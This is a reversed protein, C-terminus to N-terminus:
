GVVAGPGVLPDVPLVSVGSLTAASVTLTAGGSIGGPVAQIATSGVALGTALGGSAPTLRVRGEGVKATIPLRNSVILLRSTM